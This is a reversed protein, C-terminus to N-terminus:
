PSPAAADPYVDVRFREGERLYPITGGLYVHRALLLLGLVGLSAASRVALRRLGARHRVEREQQAEDPAEVPEEPSFRGEPMLRPWPVGDLPELRVRYFHSDCGSRACYGLRLRDLKPAAAAPSAPSAPSTALALLEPGSVRMGCLVCEASVGDRVAAEARAPELGLDVLGRTLIGALSPLVGVSEQRLIAEARTM